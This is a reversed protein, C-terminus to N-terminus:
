QWFNKLGGGSNTMAADESDKPGKLKDLCFPCWIDTEDIGVGKDSSTDEVGKEDDNNPDTDLCKTKDKKTKVEEIKALYIKHSEEIKALYIKHSDETCSPKSCRQVQSVIIGLSFAMRGIFIDVIPKMEGNYIVKDIGCEISLNDFASRLSQTIASPWEPTGVSDTYQIAQGLASKLEVSVKKFDMEHTGPMAIREDANNFEKVISLYSESKWLAALVGEDFCLISLLDLANGRSLVDSESGSKKALLRSSMKIPAFREEATAVGLRNIKTLSGISVVVVWMFRQVDKNAFFCEPFIDKRRDTVQNFKSFKKAKKKDDSPFQPSFFFMTIAAVEMVTKLASLHLPCHDKVFDMVKDPRYIPLQSFKFGPAVNFYDCAEKSLKLPTKSLLFEGNRTMLENGNTDSCCNCHVKETWHVKKRRKTPKEDPSASPPHKRPAKQKQALWLELDDKHRDSKVLIVSRGLKTAVFKLVQETTTSDDYSSIAIIGLLHEIHKSGSVISRDILASVSGLIHVKNGDELDHLDKTSLHHHFGTSFDVPSNPEVIVLGNNNSTTKNDDAFNEFMDEDPNEDAYPLLVGKEQVYQLLVRLTNIQPDSLGRSQCRGILAEHQEDVLKDEILTGCLLIYRLRASNTDGSVTENKLADYAENYAETTLAVIGCMWLENGMASKLDDRLFIPIDFISPPGEVVGAFRTICDVIHSLNLVDQQQLILSNIDESENSVFHRLALNGGSM